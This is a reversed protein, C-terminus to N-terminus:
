VFAMNEDRASRTAMRQAADAQGLPLLLCPCILAAGAACVTIIDSLRAKKSLPQAELHLADQHEGTTLVPVNPAPVKSEDSAQKELAGSM